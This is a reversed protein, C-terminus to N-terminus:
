EISTPWRSLAPLPLACWDCPWRKLRLGKNTEVCINWTFLWLENLPPNDEPFGGKQLEASLHCSLETLRCPMEGTKPTIQAIQNVATNTCPCNQLLLRCFVCKEWFKRTGFDALAVWHRAVYWCWVWDKRSIFDHWYNYRVCCIIFIFM